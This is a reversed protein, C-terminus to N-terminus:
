TYQKLLDKIFLRYEKEEENILCLPPYLVCWYNNGKGEGLTIVLSEYMGKDYKIGKFEKEPFYNYGYNITYNMNYNMEKIKKDVSKTILEISNKLKTRAEDITKVDMLIKEVYNNIDDKIIEKASLDEKTNSNAIVRIRIAENPILVIEKKDNLLLIITM